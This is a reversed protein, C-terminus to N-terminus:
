LLLFIIQDIIILNFALIGSERYKWALSYDSLSKDKEKYNIIRNVLEDSNGSGRLVGTATKSSKTNLVEKLFDIKKGINKSYKTFVEKGEM